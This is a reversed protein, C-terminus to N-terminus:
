ATTVCPKRLTRPFRHHVGLSSNTSGSRALCQQGSWGVPTAAKEQDMANGEGLAPGLWAYSIAWDHHQGCDPCHMAGPLPSLRSYSDEDTLIGTSVPRGTTPCNIMIAWIMM